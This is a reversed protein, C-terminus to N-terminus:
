SKSCVYEVLQTVIRTRKLCVCVCVCVLLVDDDHGGVLAVVRLPGPDGDVWRGWM